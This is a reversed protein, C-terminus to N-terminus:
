NEPQETPTIEVKQIEWEEEKYIDEYYEGEIYEEENEYYEASNASYQQQRPYRNVYELLRAKDKRPITSCVESTASPMKYATKNVTQSPM